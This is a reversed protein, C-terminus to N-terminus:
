LARWLKQLWNTGITQMRDTYMEDIHEDFSVHPPYPVRQAEHEARIQAFRIAKPTNRDKRLEKALNTLWGLATINPSTGPADMALIFKMFTEHASAYQKKEIWRANASPIFHFWIYELLIAKKGNSKGTPGLDVVHLLETFAIEESYGKPIVPTGVAVATSFISAAQDALEKLSLAHLGLSAGHKLYSTIQSLTM